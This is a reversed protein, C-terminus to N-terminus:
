SFDHHSEQLARWGRYALRAFLIADAEARDLGAEPLRIEWLGAINDKILLMYACALSGFREAVRKREYPTRYKRRDLEWKTM